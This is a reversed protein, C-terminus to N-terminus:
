WGRRNQNGMGFHAPAAECIEEIQMSGYEEIAKEVTSGAPKFAKIDSAKLLDMANPGISGTLVVEANEDIVTQAAAIGAGGSSTMGRNEVAKYKGTDTDFIIFYPCRGFRLDVQSNKDKGISSVCIKM